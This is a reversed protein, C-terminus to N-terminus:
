HGELGVGLGLDGLWLGCPGLDGKKLNAVSYYYCFSDNDCYHSYFYVDYPCWKIPAVVMTM